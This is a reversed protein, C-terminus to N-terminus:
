ISIESAVLVPKSQKSSVTGLYVASVQVYSELVNAFNNDNTIDALPTSDSLFASIIMTPNNEYPDWYILEGSHNRMADEQDSFETDSPDWILHDSTLNIRPYKHSGWHNLSPNSVPLFSTVGKLYLPLIIATDPDNDTTAVIAHTQDAPNM